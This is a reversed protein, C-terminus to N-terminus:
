VDLRTPAKVIRGSRTVRPAPIPPPVVPSPASTVDPEKTTVVHPEMTHEKFLSTKPNDSASRSTTVSKRLFQEPETTHHVVMDDQSLEYRATPPPERTKRLHKRNRRYERGDETRVNYSRIDCQNEVVAKEWQKHHGHPKIRVTDGCKLSPLEKSGRDFYYAQKAKNRVLQDRVNHPVQPELLQSATPLQTKTRRSFLRQVPSSNTGESPTNRWNLLALYPDGEDAITKTMIRKATHVAKEVKGNSQPYLPSSTLHEFGYKEAFMSFEASGFPQGNDTMVSDPIGHRALHPKLKGIVERATKDHLRDVEFYNSFYDVTILFDRQNLTFIDIGIKQWPRNTIEHSILPEKQQSAGHSNCIDCKNVFQEIDNYMGPWYLCERIRRICGQIGIHSHSTEILDMRESEPVVVRDGKYILGNQVTLEDRFTFYTHLYKPVQDRQDPWGRLIVTKLERLVDDQETYARLRKYRTETIPLIVNVYELQEETVSRSNEIYARSLTDAMYLQTGPTYVVEIDFKQLRLLMRQLRKPASLLNKRCIIELPKHDSEVVVKRGYTYTEFKEMGFVVALLEKEIQAYREETQTLARSAYCVPHGEQLLCAGLGTQSADCQLVTDKTPDFYSLVPANTLLHKVEEFAQDHEENWIFEVDQKILQRLPTTISSMVAFKQVFNVMGLLRKVESKSTPTKMETIARTREPNLELGNRTINHGMYTVSTRRLKLKEKNLKINKEVCRQLFARLNAEHDVLAEEDTDGSGYILIDDHIAKVGKLGELSEDIRRQFEEPAPSIGFPMRKWKFRGWPTGFTTLVSSEEDLSVHWFGNKADAVTFIKAKSLDPLVDDLTPMTYNNRKLAKNLPKPDICLRIKGSPKTVVVMSSIWDTPTKVAEIVDKSILRELEEKVKPKVSIPLKRVPLKVPTVSNDTELHLKGELSGEGKFVGMKEMDTLTIERTEVINITETEATKEQINETQVRILDMRQIDSSGLIPHVDGKVIVFEVDYAQNTRPNKVTLTRKGIPKSESKNFMILRKNTHQLKLFKRDYCARAYVSAPLVNVSSGCDLQFDINKKHVKMVANIRKSGLSNVEEVSFMFEEDESTDSINHVNQKRQKGKSAIPKGKTNEKRKHRIDTRCKKEFHGTKGCKHCRKGVAPCVQKNREHRLGCFNCDIEHDTKRDSPKFKKKVFHVEETGQIEKMQVTTKEYTRCIDICKKLDLKREQLLKKRTNNDVLGMVIRDRILENELAGYKCTKALSRLAAVYEDITEGKAQDRKNFMFREYIENTQGICFVKFKELVKDIDKKDVDTDFTLGDYIELAESGICTLLTATRLEKPKSQLGTAVEYNEWVREFKKWNVSLNGKMDLKTPFPLNSPVHVLMPQVQVQPPTSM